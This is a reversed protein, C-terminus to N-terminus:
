SIQKKYPDKYAGSRATRPGPKGMSGGNPQDSQEYSEESGGGGDKGKSDGLKQKLKPVPVEPTDTPSTGLANSLIKGAKMAMISNRLFKSNTEAM